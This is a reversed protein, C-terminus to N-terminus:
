DQGDGDGDIAALIEAKTASASVDVGQESAYALLEAKTWGDDPDGSPYAQPDVAVGRDRLAKATAADVEIVDGARALPDVYGDATLKVRAM